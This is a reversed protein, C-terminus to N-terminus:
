RLNDFNIDKFFKHAKIEAAGNAGLRKTHDPELLKKMLDASASSIYGGEDDEDEEANEDVNNAESDTCGKV